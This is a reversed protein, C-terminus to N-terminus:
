DADQLLNLSILRKLFTQVDKKLQDQGGDVNYEELLFHCIADLDNKGNCLRCISAGVKNTCHVANTHPDFLFSGEDEERFVIDPNLAFSRREVGMLVSGKTQLM